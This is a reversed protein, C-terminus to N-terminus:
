RKTPNPISVQIATEQATTLSSKEENAERWITFKELAM